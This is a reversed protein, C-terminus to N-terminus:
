DRACVMVLAARRRIESQILFYLTDIIKRSHEPYLIEDTFSSPKPQGAIPKWASLYIQLMQPPIDSLYKRLLSDVFGYVEEHRNRTLIFLYEM